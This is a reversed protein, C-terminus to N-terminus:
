ENYLGVMLLGIAMSIGIAYSLGMVVKTGADDNVFLFSLSSVFFRLTELDQVDELM